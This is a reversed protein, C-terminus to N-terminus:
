EYALAAAPPVRMARLAPWACALAAVIVVLVLWGLMGGFAPVYSAPVPFMIRGFADGLVVSIPVSLPLAILWALLAIVMGEIEVLLLIDHHRAGIARLVGIERTREMVALSMTSALGMGGVLIMVWSMAGLFQVVMLLHDEIVRRSEDVRQSSSVSADAQELEGRLRQIVDLQLAPNRAQTKVVLAAARDQGRLAALVQRSAYAVAMPGFDVVGVVTWTAPKDDILLTVTAGLDLEPDDRAVRLGVVLENGAGSGLWRGRMVGESMLKPEDPLGVVQFAEGQTGDAFAHTARAGAWAEARDVGAVATAAAEVKEPTASGALRLVFDYRQSAFLEDVSGIVAARLNAAGLYVAGGAVLTLLTLVLRGRKRFANGISLLLPRGFGNLGFTRRERWTAADAIGIDRLAAAVPLRCGRVVPFAAAAIPIAIGIAVQLAMTWAPISQGALPFNLMDVKFRAYERGIVLALPLSIVTAVLGLAAAFGFYMQAIQASGAGISKMIGIERVQGALMAAVLNVVLLACALLALLGFAGQTLMLSDMQAAHIHEGPVPVDVNLVRRGQKEALTKVDQAVRRVAARDANADRVRFQVENFDAPAGLQELTAATVFGYVLNEMWGPALGVDRVVGAVPLSKPTSDTIGLLLSDGVSAGSFELSSREIIIEGDRPPWAGMESQLRGIDSRTFDDLAYLVARRSTAGSQASAMATRRARVEAVAPLARIAGLLDADVRDLRLTAAPPLSGVYTTETVRQVLAWADLLAGAATLGIAVAVVVLLTRAKHLWADRLMKRWRRDLM